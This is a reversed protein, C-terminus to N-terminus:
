REVYYFTFKWTIILSFDIIKHMVPLISSFNLNIHYQHLGYTEENSPMKLLTKSSYYKKAMFKMTKM